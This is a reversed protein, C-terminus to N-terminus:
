KIRAMHVEIDPEVTVVRPNGRIEAITRNASVEPLTVSFGRIAHKYIQLVHGGKEEVFNIMHDIDSDSANGKMTVIYQNSLQLSKKSIKASNGFSSGTNNLQSGASAFNSYLSIVPYSIIIIIILITMRKM